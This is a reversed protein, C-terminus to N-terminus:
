RVAAEPWVRMKEMMTSLWLGRVVASRSAMSRMTWVM